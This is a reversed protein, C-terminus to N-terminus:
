SCTNCNKIADPTPFKRGPANASQVVGDTIWCYEPFQDIENQGYGTRAIGLDLHIKAQLPCTCIACFKLQADHPTTRGDVSARMMDNTMKEAGSEQRGRNFPCHTCIRARRASEDAGVFANNGKVKIQAFAAAGFVNQKLTRRRQNNVCYKKREKDSLSKCVHNGIEAAIDPHSGGGRARMVKRTAQALNDAKVEVGSKKDYYTVGGPPSGKSQLLTYELEGAMNRRIDM